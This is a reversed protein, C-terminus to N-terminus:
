RRWCFWSFCIKGPWKMRAFAYAVMSSSLLTGIVTLLTLVLTNWLFTLGYNTEPPLFALAESYNKWRPDVSRIKTLEDRGTEFSAGQTEATLQNAGPQLPQVRIAGSPLDAIEAVKKQLASDKKYWSILAPTGDEMKVTESAIQQTPIWVPPFASQEDDTKLSTSILWAFPILFLLSGVLLTVHAASLKTIQGAQEENRTTRKTVFFAIPALVVAVGIIARPDRVWMAVILMMLAFTGSMACLPWKDARAAAVTASLLVVLAAIGTVVAMLWIFAIM